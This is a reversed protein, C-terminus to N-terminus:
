YENEDGEEGFNDALSDIKDSIDQNETEKSEQSSSIRANLPFLSPSGTPASLANKSGMQSERTLAGLFESSHYVELFLFYLFLDKDKQIEKGDYKGNFSHFKLYSRIIPYIVLNNMCEQMFTKHVNIRYPSDVRKDWQSENLLEKIIGSNDDIRKSVRGLNSILWKYHEYEVNNIKKIYENREPELENKLLIICNDLHKRAIALRELIKFTKRGKLILYRSFKLYEENIRNLNIRLSSDQIVKNKTEIFESRLGM